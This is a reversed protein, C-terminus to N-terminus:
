SCPKAKIPTKSMLPKAPLWYMSAHPPNWLQATPSTLSGADTGNGEAINLTISTSAKDLHKVVNLRCGALPGDILEGVWTVFQISIQYVDLKEHDFTTKM